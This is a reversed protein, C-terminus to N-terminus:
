LHEIGAGRQSLIAAERRTAVEILRLSGDAEGRGILKGRSSIALCTTPDVALAFRTRETLTDTDWVSMVKNDYVKLLATGDPSLMPHRRVNEVNSSIVQESKEAPKALASWLAVRGEIRTGTVVFQGYPAFAIACVENLHGRLTTSQDTNMDWLKATHDMSASALTEGDPSFALKWIGSTHGPLTRIKQRTGIDWVQIPFGDQERDRGDCALRRGDRSFALAGVGEAKNTLCYTREQRAVDFLEVLADGNHGAALVQADWSFALCEANPSAHLTATKAKTGVDWVNVTGDPEAVAL